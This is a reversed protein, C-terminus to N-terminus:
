CEGKPENNNVHEAAPQKPRRPRTRTNLNAAATFIEGSISVLRQLLLDAKETLAELSEVATEFRRQQSRSWLLM